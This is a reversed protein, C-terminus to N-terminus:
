SFVSLDLHMSHHRWVYRCVKTQMRIHYMSPVFATGHVRIFPTYWRGFCVSVFMFLLVEISDIQGDIQIRIAHLHSLLKVLFVSLSSIYVMSLPYKFCLGRVYYPLPLALKLLSLTALVIPLVVGFPNRTHYTCYCMVDYGQVLYVVWSFPWRIFCWFSHNVSCWFTFTYAVKVLNYRQRQRSRTRRMRCVHCM